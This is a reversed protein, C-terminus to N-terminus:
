QAAVSPQAAFIDREDALAILQKARTPIETAIQTEITRIGTIALGVPTEFYDLVGQTPMSDPSAETLREGLRQIRTVVTSIREGYGFPANTASQSLFDAADKRAFFLARSWGDL